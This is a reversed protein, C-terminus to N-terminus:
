EDVEGWQERLEEVLAEGEAITLRLRGGSMPHGVGSERMLRAATKRHIGLRDAIWVAGVTGSSFPKRTPTANM